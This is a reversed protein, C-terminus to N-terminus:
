FQAQAPHARRVQPPPRPLGELPVSDALVKLVSFPLWSRSPSAAFMSLDPPTGPASLAGSVTTFHNECQEVLGRQEDVLSREDVSSTVPSEIDDKELEM